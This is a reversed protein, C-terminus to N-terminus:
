ETVMIKLQRIVEKTGEFNSNVGVFTVIYEGPSDYRAAYETINEDQISKIPLPLDVGFNIKDASVPGSVAYGEKFPGTQNDVIGNWYILTNTISPLNNPQIAAAENLVWQFAFAGQDYLTGSINEDEIAKGKMTFETVRFRTLNTGSETKCYWAFYIPKGESFLDAINASGSEKYEIASTKPPMTFRDTIPIWTASKVAEISYNGTFDKSYVLTAVDDNTGTYKTSQFSLYPVINYVREVNHFAYENGIEGSFFNIIDLNGQIKFRVTDGVKYTNQAIWVDLQPEEVFYPDKFCSSLLLVSLAVIIINKM